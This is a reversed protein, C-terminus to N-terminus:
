LPKSGTYNRCKHYDKYEATSWNRNVDIKDKILDEKEIKVIEQNLEM